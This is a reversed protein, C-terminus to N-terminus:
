DNLLYEYTYQVYLAAGIPLSNEDINFNPHHHAYGTKLDTNKTGIWVFVSPYEVSYESFNESGMLPPVSVFNTPDIFVEAAKVAIESCKQDNILPSVDSEFIIDASAKYTNAVSHAIHQLMDKCKKRIDISHTRISGRLVAQDPVVNHAMGAHISGVNITVPDFPNLENKCRALEMIIASSTLIPDVGLDPRSGHCGKGQVVIEFTDSSAMRTGAEISIDGTQVSTLLHLGFFTKVPENKLKDIIPKTGQGVEEAQQFCLKVTGNLLDKQALLVKAAGLLMAVHGDHGCAHMLGEKQSIYELHKNAENIPLADMDARLAVMKDKNKGEITAVIGYDGVIEFPIGMQNLEQQIKLSTEKEQLSIEPFRHLDRRMHVMYDIHEKILNWANM